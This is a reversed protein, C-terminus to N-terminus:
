RLQLKAGKELDTQNIIVEKSNRSVAFSLASLVANKIFGGTLEYKIALKKFDVDGALQM